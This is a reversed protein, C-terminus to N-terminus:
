ASRPHQRIAIKNNYIEGRMRQSVLMISEGGCRVERIEDRYSPNGQLDKLYSRLTEPDIEYTAATHVLQKWGDNELAVVQMKERLLQALEPPLLLSGKDEVVVAAAHEEVFAKVAPNRLRGRIARFEKQPDLREMGEPAAKEQAARAREQGIQELLNPSFYWGTNSRFPLLKHLKNEPDLRDAAKLLLERSMKVTELAEKTGKWDAVIKQEARLKALEAPLAAALEGPYYITTHGSAPDVYSGSTNSDGSSLRNLCCLIDRWLFDRHREHIATRSVWGDPPLELRENALQRVKLVFDPSLIVIEGALRAHEDKYRPMRHVEKILPRLANFSLPPFSLGRMLTWGEPMCSSADSMEGILEPSVHEVINGLPGSTKFKRLYAAAGEESAHVLLDRVLQPVPCFQNLRGVTQEVLQNTPVVVLSKGGM